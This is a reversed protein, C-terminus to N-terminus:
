QRHPEIEAFAIAGRATGLALSIADRQAFGSLQFHAEFHSGRQAVAREAGLRAYRQLSDEGGQVLESPRM